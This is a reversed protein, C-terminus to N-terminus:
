LLFEKIVCEFHSTPFIKLRVFEGNSSSYIFNSNIGCMVDFSNQYDHLRRNLFRELCGSADIYTLGKVNNRGASAMLFLFTNDSGSVYSSFTVIVNNENFIIDYIEQREKQNFRYHIVMNSIQEDSFGLLELNNKATGIGDDSAPCKNDNELFVLQKNALHKM